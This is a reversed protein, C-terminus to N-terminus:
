QIVLKRINTKTSAVFTAGNTLTIKPHFTASDGTGMDEGQVLSVYVGDAIINQQFTAPQEPNLVTDKMFKWYYMSSGNNVIKIYVDEEACGIVTKFEFTDNAATTTENRQTTTMANLDFRYSLTIDPPTTYTGALIAKVCTVVTSRNVDFTTQYTRYQIDRYPGKKTEIRDLTNHSAKGFYTSDRKVYTSEEGDLLAFGNIMVDRYPYGGEDQIKTTLIAGSAGEYTFKNIFLYFDTGNMTLEGLVPVPPLAILPAWNANTVGSWNKAETLEELTSVNKFVSSTVKKLHLHPICVDDVLGTFDLTPHNAELAIVMEDRGSMYKTTDVVNEKSIADNYGDEVSLEEPLVLSKLKVTNETGTYNSDIGICVHDNLIFEEVVLHQGGHSPMLLNKTDRIEPPMVRTPETANAVHSILIALNLIIFKYSM